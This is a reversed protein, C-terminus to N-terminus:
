EDSWESLLVCGTKSNYRDLAIAAAIVLDYYTEAGEELVWGSFDEGKKKWQWKPKVNDLIQSL